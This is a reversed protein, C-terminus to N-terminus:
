SVGDAEASTPSRKRSADPQPPHPRPPGGHIMGVVVSIVLFPLVMALLTGGFENGFIGARVREGTDSQCLPCALASTGTLTTVAAAAAALMTRRM